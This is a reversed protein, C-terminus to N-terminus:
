KWETNGWRSWEVCNAMSPPMNLDGADSPWQRERCENEHSDTKYRNVLMSVVNTCM